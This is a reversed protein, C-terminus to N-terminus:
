GWKNKRFYDIAGVILCLIMIDLIIQSPALHRELLPNM